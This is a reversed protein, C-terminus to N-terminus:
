EGLESSLFPIPVVMLPDGRLWNGECRFRSHARTDKDYDIESLRMDKNLVRIDDNRINQIFSGRPTIESKDSDM